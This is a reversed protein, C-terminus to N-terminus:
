QKADVGPGENVPRAGNEPLLDKEAPAPTEPREGLFRLLVTEAIQGSLGGVVFDFAHQAYPIFLTEFRVGADHLKDAM